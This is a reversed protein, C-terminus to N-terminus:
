RAISPLRRTLWINSVAGYRKYFVRARSLDFPPLFCKSGPSGIGFLRESSILLLVNDDHVYQLRAQEM